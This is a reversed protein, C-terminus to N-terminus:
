WHNVLNPPLKGAAAAVINKAAMLGMNTRTEITASAIHPLLVVNSLGALEPEFEPENEFVDLGAGWIEGNQLARVLAKEDVVPGRSTNILVATRKMLRFEATSILHHTAPVLPVHLSVFDAEKLLTEKDVYVAGTQAEFQRNAKIDNYLLKMSFGAAKQAFNQGIRGSGIIGLTKGTIDLGLLLMPSWGKYQGTRAYQDAEVARRAVCFLLTWALDATADTLVGPTNTVMIRRQRAAEVDINNFGVAYNAILKCRPAAVTLVEADVQDTLQTLVADRGRVKEMLEEKTLVRDLPNIDVDCHQKLLDIAPQPLVRTVYINWRTEAVENM